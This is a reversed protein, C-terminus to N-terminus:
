FARPGARKAAASLGRGQRNEQMKELAAFAEEITIKYQSTGIIDELYELLSEDHEGGKPKM